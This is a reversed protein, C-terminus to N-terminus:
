GGSKSRSTRCILLVDDRAVRELHQQRAPDVHREIEIGDIEVARKPREVRRGVHEM